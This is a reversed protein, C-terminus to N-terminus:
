LQYGYMKMFVNLVCILELAIEAIEIKRQWFTGRGKQKFRKKPPPCPSHPVACVNIGLQSAADQICEPFPFLVQVEGSWASIGM